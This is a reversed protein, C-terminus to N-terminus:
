DELPAAAEVIRGAGIDHDSEHCCSVLAPPRAFPLKTFLGHHVTPIVALLLFALPMVVLFEAFRDFGLGLAQNSCCQSPVTQDRVVNAAPAFPMGKLHLEREFQAGFGGQGHSFL